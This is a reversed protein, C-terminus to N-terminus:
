VIEFDYCKLEAEIERCRTQADESLSIESAFRALGANLDRILYALGLNLIKSDDTTTFTFHQEEPLHQWWHLLWRYRMGTKRDRLYRPQGTHMLKHRWMQVAVSNAEHDTHFYRDMFGVMRPTQQKRKSWCHSALDVLAFVRMMYGYLADPLGHFEGGWTPIVLTRHVEKVERDLAKTSELLETVIGTKNM